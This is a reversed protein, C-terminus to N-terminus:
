PVGPKLTVAIVFEVTEAQVQSIKAATFLRGNRALELPLLSQAPDVQVKVPITQRCVDIWGLTIEGEHVGEALGSLNATLVLTSPTTGTIVNTALWPTETTVTWDLTESGEIQLTQSLPNPAGKLVSGFDVEEPQVTIFPVEQVSALYTKSGDFQQGMNSITAVATGDVEAPFCVASAFNGSGIVDYDDNQWSEGNFEVTVATDVGVALQSTLVRYFRGNKVLFGIKDQDGTPFFNHFQAEGVAIPNPDVDNPEYIDRLDVTASPTATPTGPAATVSPTPTSPVVEVVQLDYWKDAGYVSRNSVVVLVEVDTDPPAQLTVSSSLVGLTADDNTLVTEGFSVSLFTDVGPSLFDTSVEYRRGAKALFVVQDVDFNPYFNHLQAPAGVFIPQPMTDDWEFEDTLKPTPTWTPIPTVPRQTPVATPRPTSTAFTTATATPQPPVPTPSLFPEPLSAMSQVAVQAFQGSSELQERYATVAAESSARGYILLQNGTQELGTLQIASSNLNNISAFVATWNVNGAELTPLVAAMQDTQQHVATLTLVAPAAGSFSGPTGSVATQQLAIEGELRAADNKLTAATLVLPFLLILLGLVALWISAPRVAWAARTPDTEESELAELDLQSDTQM